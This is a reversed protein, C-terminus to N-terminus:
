GGAVALAPATVASAGWDRALDFASIINDEISCYTWTGYRGLVFVDHEALQRSAESVAAQSAESVHVYAPDMVVSAWSVLEHDTIVGSGQLDAITRQFLADLKLPAESPVAIEVYLSMRDQGLINDYHGVRYFVHEPDPYYVWHDPRLSPRDFGLNFVLVKNATFTHPDFPLGCMELLRPLPLSSVLRDYKLSTGDARVTRNEIDISECRVGTHIVGDPVYSALADVFGKAGKRHYRFRDNYTPQTARGALVELLRSFEVHPFFRGMAAPDLREARVAYQKETYPILFLEAVSRGYRGILMERFNGYHTRDQNQAEYMDALCRLLDEQPLQHINFQFPYDVYSDRFFVRTRKESSVIDDTNMRAQLYDAVWKERFHFFHGSYDWTFGDQYITRCYGGVEDESELLACDFDDGLFGAVALGTIGGGIILVREKM